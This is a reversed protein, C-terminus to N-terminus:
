NHITFLNGFFGSNAMSRRLNDVQATTPSTINRSAFIFDTIEHNLLRTVTSKASKFTVQTAIQSSRAVTIIAM